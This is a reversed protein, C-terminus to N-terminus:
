GTFDISDEPTELARNLAAGFAHLGLMTLLCVGAVAGVAAHRCADTTM